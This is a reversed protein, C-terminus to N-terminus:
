KSTQTISTVMFFEGQQPDSGSVTQSLTSSIIRGTKKDFTMKGGMKLNMDKVESAEADEMKLDEKGASTSIIVEDRTIEDVKYNLSLEFPAMGSGSNEEKWTDNKSIEQKPMKMFLNDVFDAMNIPGEATETPKEVVEGMSNVKFTIKKNLIPEFQQAVMAGMGQSTEPDNSDYFIEMGQASQRATLSTISAEITHIGEASKDMVKYNLSSTTEMKFAEEQLSADTFSTIKMDTVITHEAGKDLNLRLLTGKPATEEAMVATFAFVSLISFAIKKM